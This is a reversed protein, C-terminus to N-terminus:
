LKPNKTEWVKLAEEMKKIEDNTALRYGGSKRKEDTLRMSGNTLDAVGDIEQVYKFVKPQKSNSRPKRATTAPPTVFLKRVFDHDQMLDDIDSYGFQDVVAMIAARSETRVADSVGASDLALADKATAMHATLVAIAKKKEAPNTASDRLAKLRDTEQQHEDFTRFKTM